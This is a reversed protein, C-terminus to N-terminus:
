LIYINETVQIQCFHTAIEIYRVKVNSCSIYIHFSMVCLLNILKSIQHLRLAKM